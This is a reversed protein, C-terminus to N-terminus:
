VDCNGKRVPKTGPLIRRLTGRKLRTRTPVGTEETSELCISMSISELILVKGPSLDTENLALAVLNENLFIKFYEEFKSGNSLFLIPFIVSQDEGFSFFIIRQFRKFCM